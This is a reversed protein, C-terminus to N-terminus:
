YSFDLKYTTPGFSDLSWFVSVDRVWDAVDDQKLKITLQLTYPKGRTLLSWPALDLSILGWGNYIVGALNESEIPPGNGPPELRYRGDSLRELRSYRSTEVISRNWLYERKESLSADCVLTLNVGANLLGQLPALNPFDLGFRVNIRGQSNNLILNSLSIDDAQAPHPAFLFMALIVCRALLRMAPWLRCRRTRGSGRGFSQLSVDDSATVIM